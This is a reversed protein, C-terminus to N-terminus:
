IEKSVIFYNIRINNLLYEFVESKEVKYKEFDNKSFGIGGILKVESENIFIFILGEDFSINEYDLIKNNYIVIKLVLKDSIGKGLVKYDVNLNSGFKKIFIRGINM